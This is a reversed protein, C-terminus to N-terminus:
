KRLRTRRISQMAWKTLKIKIKRFFHRLRSKKINKKPIKTLVGDRKLSKIYKRNEKSLGNNQM